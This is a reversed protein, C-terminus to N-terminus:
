FRESEQSPNNAPNDCSLGMCVFGKREHRPSRITSKHGAKQLWCCASAAVALRNREPLQETALLKRFSNANPRLLNALQSSSAWALDEIALKCSSDSSDTSVIAM